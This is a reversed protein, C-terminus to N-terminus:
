RLRGGPEPSASSRGPQVGSRTREAVTRVPLVPIVMLFAFSRPRRPFGVGWTAERRNANPM